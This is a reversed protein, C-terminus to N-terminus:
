VYHRCYKRSWRAATRGDPYQRTVFPVFRPPMFCTQTPKPRREAAINYGLADLRRLMTAYLTMNSGVRSPHTM